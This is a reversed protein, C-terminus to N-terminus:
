ISELKKKEYRSQSKIVFSVTVIISIFFIIILIFGILIIIISIIIIIVPYHLHHHHRHYHTFSGNMKKEVGVTVRVQGRCQEGMGCSSKGALGLPWSWFSFSSFNMFNMFSCCCFSVPSYSISCSYMTSFSVSLHSWGYVAMALPKQFLGNTM